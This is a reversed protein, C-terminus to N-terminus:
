EENALVHLRKLNFALCVLSWEGQVSALSRLHFRRFGMVEKIIGFVPEVVQKRLAYTARGARTCLKHRMTTQPDADPALAPPESFRELVDPHHAQRGPALFAEVDNDACLKINDASFYGNDAVLESVKGTAEPLAKLLALAPALELYQGSNKASKTAAL